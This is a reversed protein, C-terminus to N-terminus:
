ETELFNTLVEVAYPWTNTAADVEEVPTAHMVVGLRQLAQQKSREDCRRHTDGNTLM